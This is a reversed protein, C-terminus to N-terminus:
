FYYRADNSFRLYVAKLKKEAHIWYGCGNSRGIWFQGQLTMEPTMIKYVNNLTHYIYGDKHYYKFKWSKENRRYLWIVNEMERRGIIYYCIADERFDDPEILCFMGMKM